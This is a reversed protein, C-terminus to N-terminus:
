GGFSNRANVFGCVFDDKIAYVKIKASDPDKLYGRVIRKTKVEAEIAQMAKKHEESPAIKGTKTISGVGLILAIFVLMIVRIKQTDTM